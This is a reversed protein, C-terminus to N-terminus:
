TQDRVLWGALAFPSGAKMGKRDDTSQARFILLQAAERAPAGVSITFKVPALLDAHTQRAGAASGPAGTTVEM